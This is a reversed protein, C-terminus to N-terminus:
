LLVLSDQLFIELNNRSYIVIILLMDLIQAVTLTKETFNLGKAADLQWNIWKGVVDMTDKKSPDIMRIGSINVGGYKYQDYDLTHM